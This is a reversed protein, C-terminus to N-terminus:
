PKPADADAQVDRPGFKGEVWQELAEYGGIREGAVFVQPTTSVGSVARVGRPHLDVSEYPIGARDLLRRAKESWGCEPRTFVVIDDPRSAGLGLVECVQDASSVDYPDGPEDPEVLATEITGDDVIMAYRRARLAMGERRKDALLGLARHFDGNGDPVFTIADAKQDRQWAEMVHADNVAICIVDDIGNRRLFPALEVFRPVHASSCTPTFAGPLGFVVVRKGDFLDDTAVDAMSGGWRMRFVCHPVRRGELRHATELDGRSQVIDRVAERARAARTGTTTPGVAPDSRAGGAALGPASPATRRAHGAGTAEALAKGEEVAPAGITGAGSAPLVPPPGEDDRPEDNRRPDDQM